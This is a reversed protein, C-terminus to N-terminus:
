LKLPPIECTLNGENYEKSEDNGLIKNIFEEDLLGSEKLSIQRMIKSKPAVKNQKPEKDSSDLEHEIEDFLNDFLPDATKDINTKRNHFQDNRSQM